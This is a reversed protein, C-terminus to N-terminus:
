WLIEVLRVVLPLCYRLDTMQIGQNVRGPAIFDGIIMLSLGEAPRLRMFGAHAASRFWYLDELLCPETYKLFPYEQIAQM